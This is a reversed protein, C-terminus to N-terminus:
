TYLSIRGSFVQLLTDTLPSHPTGTLDYVTLHHPAMSVLLSVLGEQSPDAYEICLAERDTLTCSGDRHLCLQLEELKEPQTQVYGRLLSVLEGYEKQLLLAAAAQEVCLQWFLLTSEMRFRLYGELCLSNEQRLYERLGREVPSTDEERRANQLAATVLSRKEELSFPTADAMASLVFPQVDRCLLGCLGRALKEAGRSGQIHVACGGAAEGLTFPVGNARLRRGLLAATDLDYEFTRIIWSPMVDEKGKRRGADPAGHLM